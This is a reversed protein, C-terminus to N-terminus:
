VCVGTNSVCNLSDSLVLIGVSLYAISQYVNGLEYGFWLQQKPQM